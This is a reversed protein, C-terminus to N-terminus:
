NFYNFKKKYDDIPLNLIDEGFCELSELSNAQNEFCNVIQNENNIEKSKPVYRINKFIVYSFFSLLIIFATTNALKNFSKM